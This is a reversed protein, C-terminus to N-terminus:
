KVEVRREYSRMKRKLVEIQNHQDILYLTLEEIKLLLLAQNSGIDLGDKATENASPINPLHKNKRVFMELEDLGIPSYESDFVFDPWSGFQKVVIKEAVASGKIYLKHTNNVQNTGIGVNGSENVFLGLQPTTFRWDSGNGNEGYLSISGNDADLTIMPSKKSGIISYGAYGNDGNLAYNLSLQTKLNGTSPTYAAMALNIGNLGKFSFLSGLGTNANLFRFAGNGSVLHLRTDGPDNTGIGVNGSNFYLNPGSALFQQAFSYDLALVLTCTLIIRNM